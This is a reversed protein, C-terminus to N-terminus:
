LASSAVRHVLAWLINPSAGAVPSSVDSALPPCQALFTIYISLDRSQMYWPCPCSYPRGKTKHKIRFLTHQVLQINTTQM